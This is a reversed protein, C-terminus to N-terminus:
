EAFFGDWSVDVDRVETSASLMHVEDDFIQVVVNPSSYCQKKNEVM